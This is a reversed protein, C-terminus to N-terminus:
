ALEVSIAGYGNFRTSTAISYAGTGHFRLRDGECINKPLLPMFPLVDVPDCTPGFLTWAALSQGTRTYGALEVVPRLEPFQYVEMLGGYIGDNLFLERSNSRVAKVTTELVGASAVLGRGPECELPPPNGDFALDAALSISKFFDLLSVPAIGDYHGPFGGGVNLFAPRVKSKRMLEGAILVHDAFTSPHIVQSGPHFNLGVRFGKTKARRMLGAADHPLAGFKSKFAQVAKSVTNSRFRIGIEVTENGPLVSAIKELAEDHDIAFRRCGFQHYAAEIEARSQIPNHYHLVAEPFISRVVEAEPISAVDFHTVGCQGLFRIVKTDTNSKVAFSATGPFENLFTKANQELKSRSMQLVPKCDSLVPKCDSRLTPRNPGSLIELDIHGM